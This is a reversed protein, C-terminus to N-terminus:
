GSSIKRSAGGRGITFIQTEPVYSKLTFRITLKAGTSLRHGRVLGELSITRARKRVTLSHRRFPCGRGRCVLTIRTGAPVATATLSTFRTWSNTYDYKYTVNPSLRRLAPHVVLTATASGGASDTLTLSITHKGASSFTYRLAAGSGALRGDVRWVYRAPTAYNDVISATYRAAVGAKPAVPGNISVNPPPPTPITVTATATLSSGGADAARYTFSDTGTYGASSVYVIAGTATNLSAITGHAPGSVISYTLPVGPPGTCNLTGSATGGGVPTKLSLVGCTPVAPLLPFAALGQDDVQVGPTAASTPTRYGSQFLWHAGSPLGEVVTGDAPAAALHARADAPHAIDYVDVEVAPQPGGFVSWGTPAAIAAGGAVRYISGSQTTLFTGSAPVANLHAHPDSLNDVDWQDTLVAASSPTSINSLSSVWLPAGGAITYYSGGSTLILTGDAPVANLHALATGANDIDWEDISVVDAPTKGIVTLNSVYLPAGGVIEYVRGDANYGSVITGNSPVPNLHAAPDGVHDIDWQDIHVLTSGPPINSFSSVYLPAGGAILFVGGGSARVVTGNAPVPNIHPDVASGANQIDWPDVSTIPTSSDDGIVTLDNVKLPAGGVMEYVNGDSSSGAEQV